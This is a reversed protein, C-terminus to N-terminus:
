ESPWGFVALTLKGEDRWEPGFLECYVTSVTLLNWRAGNIVRNFGPSFSFKGWVPPHSHSGVGCQRTLILVWEVSAPLFSFGSWVPASDV